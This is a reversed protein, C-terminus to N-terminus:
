SIRFRSFLGSDCKETFNINEFISINSFYPKKELIYLNACPKNPICKKFPRNKFARM